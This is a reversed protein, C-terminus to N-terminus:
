EDKTKPHQQKVQAIERFAATQLFHSRDKYAPHQKVLNDIKKLLLKPLTVNKKVAGGLYPELDIDIVAWAWGQYAEDKQWDSLSGASPPVQEHEALDELYFEVAERANALAEELTDGASFCGPLDPFVVSYAYEADGTEIAVPYLM